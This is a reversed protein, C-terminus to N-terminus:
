FAQENRFGGESLTNDSEENENENEIMLEFAKISKELKIGDHDAAKWSTVSLMAACLQIVLVIGNFGILYAICSAITFAMAAVSCLRELCIWLYLFALKLLKKRYM